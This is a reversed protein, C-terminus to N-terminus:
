VGDSKCVKTIQMAVDLDDEETELPPKKMAAARKARKPAPEENM